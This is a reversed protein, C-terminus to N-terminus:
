NNCQSSKNIGCILPNNLNFFGKIQPLISVAKSKEFATEIKNKM